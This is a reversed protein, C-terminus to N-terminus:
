LVGLFATRDEANFGDRARDLLWEGASVLAERDLDERESDECAAIIGENIRLAVARLTRDEADAAKRLDDECEAGIAQAKESWTGNLEEIENPHLRAGFQRLTNRITEDM